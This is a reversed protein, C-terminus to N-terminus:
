QHPSHTLRQWCFKINGDTATDPEQLVLTRALNSFALSAPSTSFIDVAAKQLSISRPMAEDRPIFGLYDIIVSGSLFRDVVKSLQDYTRQAEGPHTIKNFLLKFRKESYKTALVKILAYADVVSTPEHDAVVIREQAGLNFYLVNASIGAGTDVLLYDFNESLNDLEGLLFLKQAQNLEASEMVGSAAPLIQMGEPGAMIVEALTKHGSFVDAITYLPTLGILIDLNALGLDADLLLVRQGLRTLALGLNVVISSKGVGGKGSTVAIVRCVPRPKLRTNGKPWRVEHEMLLAAERNM